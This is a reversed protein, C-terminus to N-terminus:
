NRPLATGDARGPSGYGAITTVLGASPVMRIENNYADCMYLTGGAFRAQSALELLLQGFAHQRGFQRMVQFGFGLLALAAVVAVAGAGLRDNRGIALQVQVDRAIPLRREFRLQNAFILAPQGRRFGRM